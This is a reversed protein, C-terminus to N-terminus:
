IYKSVSQYRFEPKICNNMLEYDKEWNYLGAGSSSYAGFPNCEILNCERTEFNMWVDAVFDNYPVVDLFKLKERSSLVDVITNLEDQTYNFCSFCYQQSACTIQRNKVFLRIESRKTISDNWPILIVYSNKSVAFEQRLFLPNTILFNLVDLADSFPRVPVSNKGSTSSMRVFYKGVGSQSHFKMSKHIEQYLDNLEEVLPLTLPEGGFSKTKLVLKTEPSLPILTANISVNPSYWNNYDYGEVYAHYINELVKHKQVQHPINVVGLTFSPTSQTIINRVHNPLTMWWSSDIVVNDNIMIWPSYEELNNTNFSNKDLNTPLPHLIM